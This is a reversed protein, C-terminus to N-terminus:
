ESNFPNFDYEGIRIVTNYLIDKVYNDSIKIKSSAILESLAFCCTIMKIMPYINNEFAFIEVVVKHAIM